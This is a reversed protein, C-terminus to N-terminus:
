CDQLKITIEALLQEMEKVEVPLSGHSRSQIIRKVVAALLFKSKTLEEKTSQQYHVIQTVTRCVRRVQQDDKEWSRVSTLSRYEKMLNEFVEMDLGVQGSLFARIEYVWPLSTSSGLRDLLDQVRVLSRRASDLAIKDGKENATVYNHVTGGVIARVCKEELEPVGQSSKSSKLDLLIDCAQAAEDFKRLDLCTYLKSVWVRWNNRDYKLSELLAPYAERCHKNRMHIAAVNAWAEAEEPHQQVVETFAILAGHWDELQM